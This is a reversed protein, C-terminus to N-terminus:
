TRLEVGAEGLPARPEPTADKSLGAGNFLRGIGKTPHSAILVSPSLQQRGGM